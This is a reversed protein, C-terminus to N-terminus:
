VRERCSARGIQVGSDLRLAGVVYVGHATESATAVQGGRRIQARIRALLEGPSFPKTVYDDAGADLGTIKDSESRRATLMIIPVNSGARLRRAVEVGSLDPLAVDLLVADPPPQTRVIALAEAGTAVVDVVYGEQRLIFALSEAQLPDDEVVVVRASAPRTDHPDSM